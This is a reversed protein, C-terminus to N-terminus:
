RPRDGGEAETERVCMRPRCRVCWLPSPLDFRHVLDLGDMSLVALRLGMADRLLMVWLAEDDTGADGAELAEPLGVPWARVVTALDAGLFPRVTPVGFGGM